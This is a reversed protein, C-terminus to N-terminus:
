QVALATAYKGRELYLTFLHCITVFNYCRSWPPVVIQFVVRPRIKEKLVPQCM